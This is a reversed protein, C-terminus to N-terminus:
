AVASAVISRSISAAPIRYTGNQVAATLQSVRSARDSFSTSWASSASSVAVSDHTGADSSTLGTGSTNLGTSKGTASLQANANASETSAATNNTDLHLRM